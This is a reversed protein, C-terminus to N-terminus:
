RPRVELYALVKGRTRPAFHAEVPFRGTATAEFQSRAPTGPLVEQEIEYAHVHVTARKDTSWEITLHDGKFARLVRAAAREDSISVQFTLPDASPRESFLLGALLLSPLLLAFNRRFGNLPQSM